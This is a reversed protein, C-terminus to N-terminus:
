NPFSPPSPMGMWDIPYMKRLRTGDLDEELNFCTFREKVQGCAPARKEEAGYIPIRACSSTLLTVLGLVLLLCKKM